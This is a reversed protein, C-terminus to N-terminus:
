TGREECKRGTELTMTQNMVEKVTNRKEERGTTERKM